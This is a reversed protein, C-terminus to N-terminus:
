SEKRDEDELYSLFDELQNKTTIIKGPALKFDQYSVPESDNPPTYTNWDGGGYTAVEELQGQAIKAADVLDYMTIYGPHEEGTFDKIRALIAQCEEIRTQYYYDLNGKSM